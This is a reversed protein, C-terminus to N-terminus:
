RAGEDSEDTGCEGGGGEGHMHTPPTPSMQLRIQTSGAKVADLFKTRM